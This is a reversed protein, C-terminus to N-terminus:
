LKERCVRFGRYGSSSPYLGTRNYSTAYYSTENWAGGRIVKFTGTDPGKPDTTPSISYYAQFFWDSCWEYVNGHMDYLGWANPLKQGVPHTRYDSNVSYWGMEDLKGSGGYDGTTGARCAYEWEAETPLRYVFGDNRANMAQIFSQVDYWSVQEVPLNDDGTFFSPNNGMVAKWQGQTIEYKGMEFSQSIVIRHVPATYGSTGYGMLFESAPITVFQIGPPTATVVFTTNATITFSGSAPVVTGDRKVLLNQYGALLSYSYNITTGSNYSATTAPTGTTGTGLNVTLTYRDTPDAQTTLTTAKVLDFTGSQGSQAVMDMKLIPNIYGAGANVQWSHTGAQYFYNGATVNQGDISLTTGAGVQVTIPYSGDYPYTSSLPYFVFVDQGENQGVAIMIPPPIPFKPAFLRIQDANLAEQGGLQWLMASTKEHPNITFTTRLIEVGARYGFFQFDAPEARDNTIALGQWSYRSDKIVPIVYEWALSEEGWFDCRMMSTGYQYSFLPRVSTTDTEVALTGEVRGLLEEGAQLVYGPATNVEVHQGYAPISVKKSIVQNGTVDYAVLTAEEAFASNNFLIVRLVWGDANSLDALIYRHTTAAFVPSCMVLLSVFSMTLMLAVLKKM